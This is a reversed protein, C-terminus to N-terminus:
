IFTPSIVEYQTIKNRKNPVALSLEIDEDADGDGDDLTIASSVNSIGRSTDRASALGSSLREYSTSLATSSLRSIM